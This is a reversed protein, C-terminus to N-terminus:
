LHKLKVIGREEGSVSLLPDTPIDHVYIVVHRGEGGGLVRM